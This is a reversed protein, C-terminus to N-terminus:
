GWSMRCRGVQYTKSKKVRNVCSSVGGRKVRGNTTNNHERGNKFSLFDGVYIEGFVPRPFAIYSQNSTM